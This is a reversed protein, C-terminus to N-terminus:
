SNSNSRVSMSASPSSAIRESAMEASTREPKAEQDGGPGAAVVLEEPVPRGDRRWVITLLVFLAWLVALHILMSRGGFHEFLRSSLPPGTLMGLAYFVNYWGNVRAYDRERVVLGQLGLSLPSISALTAGAVFVALLMVPFTTLWAFAGTTLAGVAALLSMLGLHGFRDGLRGAFNSFVLMGGAFLAPLVVTQEESMGRERMLFIPLFLVVSAQFYGYAFTAMHSVKVRWLLQATPTVPLDAEHTAEGGAHSRLTRPVLVLASLAAIVALAAAIFFCSGIEVASLALRAVLPGIFYGAAMTTAYLGMVTAKKAPPAVGLLATEFSVWALASFGGDAGRIAAISAFTTAFPFAVMTSSYGLLAVGLAYRAGIAGVIRAAIMAVMSIGLAFFVALDGISSKSLGRADLFLPTVALSVGYAIGLLAVAVLIRAVNRPPRASPAPM